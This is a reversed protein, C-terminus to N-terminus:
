TEAMRGRLEERNEKAVRRLRDIILEAAVVDGDGFLGDFVDVAPMLIGEEVFLEEIKQGYHWCLVGERWFHDQYFFILGGFNGKPFLDM